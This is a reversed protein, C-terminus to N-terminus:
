HGRPVAMGEGLSKIQLRSSNAYLFCVGHRPITFDIYFTPYSNLSFQWPRLCASICKRKPAYENSFPSRHAIKSSGRLLQLLIVHMKTPKFVPSKVVPSPLCPLQLLGAFPRTGFSMEDRANHEAMDETRALITTQHEGEGGPLLASAM